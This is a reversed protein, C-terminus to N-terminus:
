IMLIDEQYVYYIVENNNLHFEARKEPNSARFIEARIKEAIQLNDNDTIQGDQNIIFHRPVRSFRIPPGDDSSENRSFSFEDPAQNQNLDDFHGEEIIFAQTEELRDHKESIIISRLIFPLALSYLLLAITMVAGIILWIQFSLPKNKIKKLIENM